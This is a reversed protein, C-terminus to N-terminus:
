SLRKLYRRPSLLRAGCKANAFQEVNVSPYEADSIFIGSLNGRKASSCTL